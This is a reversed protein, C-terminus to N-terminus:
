IALANLVLLSQIRLAGTHKLLEKSVQKRENEVKRTINYSGEFTTDSFLFLQLL